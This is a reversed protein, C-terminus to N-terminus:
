VCDISIVQRIDGELMLQSVFELLCMTISNSYVVLSRRSDLWDGSFVRPAVKRGHPVLIHGFLDHLCRGRM